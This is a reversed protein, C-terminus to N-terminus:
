HLLVKKNIIFPKIKVSNIVEIPQSVVLDFLFYCILNNDTKKYPINLEFSNRSTNQVPTKIAKGEIYYFQYLFKEQSKDKIVFYTTNQPIKISLSPSITKNGKYFTDILNDTEKSPLFVINDRHLDNKSDMLIDLSEKGLDLFYTKQFQDIAVTDKNDSKLSNLIDQKNYQKVLYGRVIVISSNNVQGGTKLVTFMFVFITTFFPNFKKM